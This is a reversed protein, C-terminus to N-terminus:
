AWAERLARLSNESLIKGIDDDSYGKKVLWRVINHWAETPNELGDIATADAAADFGHGEETSGYLRQYKEPDDHYLDGIADLDGYILDTGFTVHNTGVLNEIYEFHDLIADFSLSDQKISSMSTAAGIGIIGGTDAVAKLCEDTKPKSTNWLERAGTHSLFVPKETAKCVDLITRDSSHTLDIAMGLRNMREIAKHGFYTLGCDRDGNAAMGASLYTTDNMALGSMRVGIGYLLDLRDLENEIMPAGELAPIWAVQDNEYARLIDDISGCQVLFDQHAIDSMRMALDEIHDKWKWTDSKLTIDRFGNILNDFIANINSAALGDYATWTRNQNFYERCDNKPDDPLYFPHDHLSIILFNESIRTAREKEDESLPLEYPEDLHVSEPMNFKTFDTEPDLYQFSEYGSYKSM